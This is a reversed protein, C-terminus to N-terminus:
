TKVKKSLAPPIQIHSPISIVTIVTTVRAAACSKPTLPIYLPKSEVDANAPKTTPIATEPRMPSVRPRLTGITYLKAATAKSPKVVATRGLKQPIMKNLASRPKPIPKPMGGASAITLSVVGASHLIGILDAVFM